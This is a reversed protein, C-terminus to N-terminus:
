NVESTPPPGLNKQLGSDLRKKNAGKADSESKVDHKAGDSDPKLKGKFNVGEVSSDGGESQQGGGSKGDDSSNSDKGDESEDADADDDGKDEDGEEGAKVTMEENEENAKDYAEAHEQQFGAEGKHEFQMKDDHGDDHHSDGATPWLYYCSPPTIAM